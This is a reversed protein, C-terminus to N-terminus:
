GTPTDRVHVSPAAALVREACAAFTSGLVTWLVLQAGVSYLRFRYLLDADFGPLVIAGRADRLPGPTETAAEGYQALNTALQGVPPLAAMLVGCAFAFGALGVLTANWNGLRPALRRGLWVALAGFLVAGLVLVLYLGTRQGITDPHGVAPPNAPYKLFPVLYLTVFGGGALLAALSRPRLGGTRGWALCYAVALLAGMAAGFLVMGVGAGLSAQVGRGVLELDHPAEPRGAASALADRAADRRSEYDIATQIVPEALLRAFLFALLGGLAGAAVARLVLARAM